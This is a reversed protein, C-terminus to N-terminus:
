DGDHAERRMKSILEAPSVVPIGFRKGSEAFHKTNNTVLAEAHGNIAVDLVMDDNPDTSLPRNKHVIEVAEAFAELAEILELMERKSLASAALHEPRLAVDRYELSLKLDMLPLIEGRFVM